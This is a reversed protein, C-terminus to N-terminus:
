TTAMRPNAPSSSRITTTSSIPIGSTPRPASSDTSASLARGTPWNRRTAALHMEDTPCLHWKGTMYTNWGLEGLIEPLMGNEPPIMGSANPFGIAAETICGHQQAHPQPRDALVVADALLAGDHAM